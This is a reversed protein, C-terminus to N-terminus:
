KRTINVKLASVYDCQFGYDKFEQLSHRVIEAQVTEQLKGIDMLGHLSEEWGGIGGVRNLAYPPWKQLKLKFTQLLSKAKEINGCWYHALVIDKYVYEGWPNNCEQNRVPVISVNELYNVLDDVDLTNQQLLVCENRLRFALEIHEQSHRLYSFRDTAGKSNRITMNASLSIGPFEIMLNHVHFVVRYSDNGSDLDLCIGCLFPGNKRILQMPVHEQFEPFCNNWDRTIERKIKKTFKERVV